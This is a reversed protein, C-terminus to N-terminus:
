QATKSYAISLNIASNANAVAWLKGGTKVALASLPLVKTEGPSIAQPGFVINGNAQGSGATDDYVTVTQATGSINTVLAKSITLVDNANASMVAQAGNTLTGQYRETTIAM